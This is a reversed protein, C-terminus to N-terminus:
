KGIKDELGRILAESHAECRISNLVDLYYKESLNRKPYKGRIKRYVREFFTRPYLIKLYEDLLRNAFRGYEMEVFERDKIKMSRVRFEDMIKNDVVIKAVPSSKELLIYEVSFNDKEVNLQVLLGYNWFEDNGSDFLFNGQGYLIRGRGYREECGICHSHQCTVFDAGADVFARCRNQLKPSPYRYFEKGAHFIVILFDCKNKLGTIVSCTYNEEYADAGASVNTANCYETECINYVGVKIGDRSFYFVEPTGDKKEVIGTSAIKAEALLKLTRKLGIQGYDLIHNNALCILDPNLSKIGNICEEDCRLNPGSKAIPEAKNSDVVPCELNFLRLDAGTWLERFFDDFLQLFDKKAFCERSAETPVVDGGIVIKM